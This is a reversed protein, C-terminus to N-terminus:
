KLFSAVTSPDIGYHTAHHIVEGNRIVFLQPSQHQRGTRAAIENSLPRHLQITVVYIDADISELLYKVHASIGCSSSHKLLVVPGSNSREFGADLVESSDIEIFNAPM